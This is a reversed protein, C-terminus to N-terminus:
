SKHKVPDDGYTSENEFSGDKKHVVVQSPEEKRAREKIERVVEEKTDNEVVVKKNGINEAKWGHEGNPVVHYVTRDKAM